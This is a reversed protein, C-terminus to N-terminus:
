KDINELYSEIEKHLLISERKSAEIRKQTAYLEKGLSLAIFALRDKIDIEEDTKGNRPAMTKLEDLKRNILKAANRVGEEEDASSVNLEYAKDAITIKIRQKDM